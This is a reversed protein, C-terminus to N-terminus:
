RGKAAKPECCLVLSARVRTLEAFDPKTEVDLIFDLLADDTQDDV